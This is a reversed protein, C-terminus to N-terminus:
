AMVVDLFTRDTFGFRTLADYGTKIIPSRRDKSTFTLVDIENIAMGEFEWCVVNVKSIWLLLKPKNEDSLNRKDFIINLVVLPGLLSLVIDTNPSLSGVFLGMAQSVM